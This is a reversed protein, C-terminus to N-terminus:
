AQRVDTHSFDDGKFLLAEGTVKALAYAFCDGYNLKAPHGTGRGFDRYAARAIMAHEATVPEIAVEAGALFEDLMRSQLADRGSDIVIGTELYSAASICPFADGAIAEEFREREPENLLIALVASTDIIM